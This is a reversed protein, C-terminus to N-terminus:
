MWVTLEAAHLPVPGGHARDNGGGVVIGVGWVRPTGGQM